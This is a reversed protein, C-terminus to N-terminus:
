VLVQTAIVLNEDRGEKREGGKVNREERIKPVRERQGEKQSIKKAAISCLYIVPNPLSNAESDM